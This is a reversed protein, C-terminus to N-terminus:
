KGTATPAAAEGTSETAVMGAAVGEVTTTTAEGGDDSRTHNWEYVPGVCYTVGPLLGASCAEASTSAPDGLSPNVQLFLSYVINHELCVATCSTTPDDVTGPGDATVTYWRGCRLTTGEAVTANEPPAVVRDTYGEGPGPMATPGPGATATTTVNVAQDGLCLVRGYTESILHLDPCDLDLWPNHRRVTGAPLNHATEISVCTDDAQLVYTYACTLPLCFTTNAPIDNCSFQLKGSNGMFIGASAVDHALAISDCTEDASTTTYYEESICLQEPEPPLVVLPPPVDTDGSIGCTAYAYELEEKWGEDWTSYPTSQMLRMKEIHCFSCLEDRPMDEITDVETFADIVDGCYNGTTEDLLCTENWGAWLIGGARNAPAGYLKQQGDEGSGACVDTVTDFWQKLSQGCGPDCVSDTLNKSELPGRYRLQRFSQVTPDCKIVQSLATGCGSTVEKLARADRTDATGNYLAFGPFDREGIISGSPRVWALISSLFGNQNDRAMTPDANVPSVMERVAKTCLNYIWVDTSQDIEFARDQCDETLLCDQSYRSFWSYVGAGLIHIDSSDIIRVGWSVACTSSSKDCHDFTPDNTFQGTKFPAPAKPVDQYYPSETQIMAMITNKAESFQYQYLVNHESATGYLWNPGQSEILVGRAVYVDIRDQTVVDLDHDATWIWANEIYASSKATLHLLMSAAICNPNVTGTLQPCDDKQLDSGIAGGVRWHCDWMGASGQFSEKTNWEVLVAGATAGSVTFMLDQMEIIGVDGPRGVQVVPRPRSADAFKSGKGMIQPWAQGIIRSGTPVRLTDKVVYVGHPFYVISSTNAALSLISNLITTDDSTGDGKAGLAKVDLLQTGSLDYYKPRRRTFLNSGTAYALESSLLMGPRKPAPIDQGNIFTSGNPSNQMGFGWSEVTVENGGALLVEGVSDDVVGTVM